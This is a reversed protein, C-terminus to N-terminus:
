ATNSSFVETYIYLYIFTQHSFGGRPLCAASMHYFNVISFVFLSDEWSLGKCKLAQHHCFTMRAEVFQM